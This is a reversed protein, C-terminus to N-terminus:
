LLDELVRGYTLTFDVRWHFAAEVELVPLLHVPAQANPRLEITGPGRWVEHVVVDDFERATLQRLADGGDVAPVVKLNINTRFGLADLEAPDAAQQKYPM